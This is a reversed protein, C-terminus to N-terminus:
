KITTSKQTGLAGRCITPESATRARNVNRRRGRTGGRGCRASMATAASYSGYMFKVGKKSPM